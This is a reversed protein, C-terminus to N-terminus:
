HKYIRESDVPGGEKGRDKLLYIKSHDFGAPMTQTVTWGAHSKTVIVWEPQVDSVIATATHNYRKSKGFSPGNMQSINLVTGREGTKFDVYYPQITFFDRRLVREHKRVSRSLPHVRKIHSFRTMFTSDPEQWNLSVFFPGRPNKALYYRVVAERINDHQSTHDVKLFAVSFVIICAVLGILLSFFWQVRKVNM